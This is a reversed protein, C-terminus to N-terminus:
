SPPPVLVLSQAVEDAVPTSVAVPGGFIWGSMVSAAVESLYTQTQVALAGTPPVLVLPGDARAAIPGGSLADPFSVGSAVGVVSPSVFFTQAVMASTAFRDAGAVANAYPDAAVAPGGIAYRIDDPHATVYATTPAIMARGNTFLVAGHTIAAAPGASLADPFNTGDVEFITTPNDLANAIKLATDFRTAGALRVPVYGLARLQTEIGTALSATGGLLFIQGGPALVREIESTVAPLLQSSPTLLLPANDQVALPVGALADPYEDSRALVVADASDDATFGAQSAAISTAIRDAGAARSLVAQDSGGGPLLVRVAPNIALSVATGGKGTRSRAPFVTIQPVSPTQAARAGQSTVGYSITVTTGAPVTIGSVVITNGVIKTSGASATTFGAVTPSTTPLTWTGPVTVDLEGDVMGGSPTTSPTYTFTLTTTTSPSVVAPTVTMAGSGAAGVPPCLESPLAAANPRGLGTTLDYGARTGYQGGSDGTFDNNPGTTVDFLGPAGNQALQYLSPNIFGVSGASCTADTLAIISAWIPTAVQTGGVAHWAGGYYAVSGHAVDALASVDPTERCLQGSPAGCPTGSSEGLSGLNRQYAPMTWLTSMGGGGAGFSDNWSKDAASLSAVSTGGVATVEPQSAPEWVSVAADSSDPPAFCGESGSNGTAALVTQGQAAMQQFVPRELAALESVGAQAECLGWSDSVVQASDDDAIQRFEDYISGADNPAEYVIINSTPALGIVQEIELTAEGTSAPPNGGVTRASVATQTGFCSQFAAVDAPDFSELEFLAITAGRGTTTGYLGSIGYHQAIQDATYAQTATAAASAAACAAPASSNAAANSNAPAAAPLSVAAPTSFAPTSFAPTLLQNSVEEDDPTTARSLQDLGVIGQVSAAVAAPLQPATVNALGRRGSPLVYQKFSTSLADSVQSVTGRVPVSLRNSAPAGVTLGRSRLAATVSAVTQATAGFKSGFDGPSLYHGYQPSGPTSVASVFRALAQPDRPAMTVDFSMMSDAPAAQTAEIDAPILAARGVAVEIGASAQMVTVSTVLVGAGVAVIAAAALRMTGVLSFGSRASLPRVSAM